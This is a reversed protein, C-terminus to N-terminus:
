GYKNYQLHAAAEVEVVGAVGVVVTEAAVAKAEKTAELEALCVAAAARLPAERGGVTAAMKGARGEPGVWAVIGWSGWCGRVAARGERAEVAAM